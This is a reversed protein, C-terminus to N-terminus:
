QVYIEVLFSRCNERTKKPPQKLFMGEPACGLAWGAGARRELDLDDLRRAGSNLNALNEFFSLPVKRRRTGLPTWIHGAFAFFTGEPLKVYSNEGNISSNGM